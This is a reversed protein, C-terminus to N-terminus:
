SERAYADALLDITPGLAAVLTRLTTEHLGSPGGYPDTVDDEDPSAPPALLGRLAAAEEVAVRLREPGAADAPLAARDVAAALRAFERITFTRRLLTPAQRVVAARHARTATLVLDVGAVSTADLRRAVFGDPDGGLARLAAAADADMAEGVLGHTGASTVEIAAAPGLRTALGARALREAAASRCINGTCVFLLRFLDEGAAVDRSDLDGERERGARIM